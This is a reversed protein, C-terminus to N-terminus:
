EDLFGNLVIVTTPSGAGRFSVLSFIDGNKLMEEANNIHFGFRVLFAGGDPASANKWDGGTNYYYERLKLDNISQVAVAFTSGDANWDSGSMNKGSVSVYLMNEASDIVCESVAIEIGGTKTPESGDSIIPTTNSNKFIGLDLQCIGNKGNVLLCLSAFCVLVALICVGSNHIIHNFYKKEFIPEKLEENKM